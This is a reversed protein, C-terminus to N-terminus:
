RKFIMKYVGGLKCPQIKDKDPLIRQFINTNSRIPIYIGFKVAEYKIKTDNGQDFPIATAFSM